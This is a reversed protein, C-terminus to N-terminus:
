FTSKNEKGIPYLRISEEALEYQKRSNGFGPAQLDTSDVYARGNVEYAYIVLPRIAGSTDAEAKIVRGLATPWTKRELSESLNKSSNLTLFVSGLLILILVLTMWIPKHPCPLYKGAVARLTVVSILAIILLTWGSM